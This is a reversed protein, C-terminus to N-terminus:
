KLKGCMNCWKKTILIICNKNALSIEFVSCRMVCATLFLLFGTSFFKKRCKNSQEHM